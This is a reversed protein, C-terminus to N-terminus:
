VQGRAPEGGQPHAPGPAHHGTTVHATALDIFEAAERLIATWRLFGHVFGEALIVTVPVGYAELKAAYALGEDVLPDHSAVLLVLPPLGAASEVRLPSADPEARAELDPCYRDWFWAMREATLGFGTGLERYSATDMSADTVPYFLLQGALAGDQSPEDRLRRAAVAALTGGASDGAVWIRHPDVGLEGAGGLLWRAASEADDAAGPLETEPALRYGVSFVAGGLGQALRACLDDYTDLTGTVWGGGHFFLLAPVAAGTDSRYERVPLVADGVTLRHHRVAGPVRATSAVASTSVLHEARVLAVAEAPSEPLPAPSPANALRAAVVPHLPRGRQREGDSDTSTPSSM